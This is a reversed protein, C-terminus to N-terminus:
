NLFAHLRPRGRLGPAARLPQSTFARANARAWLAGAVVALLFSVGCVGVKYLLTRAVSPTAALTALPAPDALTTLAGLGDQSVASPVARGPGGNALLLGALVLLAAVLLGSWRASRLSRLDTQQRSLSVRM